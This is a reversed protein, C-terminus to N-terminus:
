TIRLSWKPSKTLSIRLRDNWPVTLLFWLWSLKNRPQLLHSRSSLIRNSGSDSMRESSLDRRTGYIPFYRDALHSQTHVLIDVTFCLTDGFSTGKRKRMIGTKRRGSPHRDERESPLIFSLCVHYPASDYTVREKRFKLLLLMGTSIQFLITLYIPLLPHFM